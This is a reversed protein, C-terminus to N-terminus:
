DFLSPQPLLKKHPKPQKKRSWLKQYVKKAQERVEPRKQASYLIQKAHAQASEFHVMPEPYTSYLYASQMEADSLSRIEPIWHRVFIYHKDHDALQKLPNYMRVTNIGTVAAQMQFQSYHIWPEYDTFQQALRHAPRRRDQLLTNCVFSVLCARARFNLRGTDKVARISADIFLFWTNGSEVKSRMDDDNTRLDALWTNQEEFEMRPWSEFKQIFHDHRHLRSICATINRIHSVAIKSISPDTLQTHLMTKQAMLHTYIQKVSLNGYTIYASLRSNYHVSTHPNALSQLYHTSRRQVFSDLMGLAYLEWWQQIHIPWTLYEPTVPDQIWPDKPVFLFWQHAPDPVLPSSMRERWIGDYDDRDKLARVVGNTPYETYGVNNNKCRQIVALDRMYTAHNWTEEHSYIHTIPQSQHFINLMDIVECDYVWLRINYNLLDKKLWLICQTHFMRHARSYDPQTMISHEYCFFAMIEDHQLSIEYLARHDHIRCNKKIWLLQM